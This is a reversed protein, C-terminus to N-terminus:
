NICNKNNKITLDHFRVESTDVIDNLVNQAEEGWYYYDTVSYSFNVPYGSFEKRNKMQKILEDKIPDIVPDFVDSRRQPSKYEKRTDTMIFMRLEKVKGYAMPKSQITFPEHLWVLPFKKNFKYPSKSLQILTENLEKISGYHSYLPKGLITAINAVVSTFIETVIYPPNNM